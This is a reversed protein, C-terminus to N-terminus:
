HKFAADSVRHYPGPLSKSVTSHTSDSYVHCAGTCNALESATYKEGTLTKPHADPKFDNVHCAGCTGANAPALYPIQDTNSTHCTVCSPTARHEGPYAASSHKFSIVSWDSYTHCSACDRQLSMHQAPKGVAITNNHCNACGSTLTSHDLKAPLWALTGHCTDCQQSTPVHNRPLGIAHVADHCTTCTHPSVSAHEFRAPTWANTTHCSECGAATAVHGSPKGTAITGNHCSACTGKVQTHDVRSVPLWALTMHCTECANSAAIHSAPKGTGSAQDHCNICSTGFVRRHDFSGQRALSPGVTPAVGTTTGAGGRAVVGVGTTAKVAQRVAATAPRRIGYKDRASHCGSGGCDQGKHHNPGDRVWLRPEGYWAMGYEHCSDCRQARVAAHKMITGAFTNFNTPTHCQECAITGTPIHAPPGIPPQKLAPPAINAFTLGAGHCQACNATINVHNMTYVSYDNANTHCLGCNSGDAAPLPIHNPPMTTAGQFSTTSFHCNSCEGTAVHPAPPRTVIAPSGVFSKGAEHCTSCTISTVVAHNMATGAFTTFSTKSHCSECSITGTPIHNSPFTKVAPSGAFTLGAGHCTICNTTFGTHNMATGAFTTFSTKSHCGDCATTGIPIHNTPETVVPPAGVFSKGSAHCTACAISTVAAHNMATGAFSAFTSTSHCSECSITGTPIHNSPFTKVAPTGTFSLGAGHCAICDTMFGAHNMATGAFTTFNSPSHCSECARSGVPIHGAPLVKLTPPAMNTFSSGSAHCQACNSTINAHSMSYVSYDNPNSHCLACNTGDAAPLPIHNPPLNSAGTFTTTSFHCTSCEGATVHPPPPRTVVPPAGVFSKGAEHCASCAISTVVAHNMATGAFNTFNSTSHCKECALTGTPIHNSPFTKVPPAGAFTLGAGHCTICNTTFGAHNMATGSFTTFNTAAHCSQCATSGVPIHNTPETVVAPTGVFVKGSGHCSACATGSVVAHNMATGSFSTFITPSHCSECATTGVPVHNGPLVKLTPPAMNAFSATAGHCTACATGTVVSHDMNYIAYNSANSHCQSCSSSSGNPVPIHNAPFNSANKFTITTHCDSCEEVQVHPLAPRTVIPPSGVFAKGTEHCASCAISSVVAHNMVTGGFSTFNSTSHCGECATTGTPIHNAPVTLVPPTGTFSLGAGHCAICNATFGAHNMSTRSFTTFNTASHCSVCDVTGVPIHGAPETVLSPTGLFTLGAGHCAACGSTVGAHSMMTGSFTTFNSPSHCTECPKSTPVHNAPLVKLTPPAMNAFSLGAGHCSACGSSIGQHSMVYVSFDAPNSHCLTCPQSSPIHNAPQLTGATFSLTSAHCAGCDGTTPHPASPRTVITVGLFSRGAEHCTACAIATVAAHNMATGAFTTFNTTSHCSECPAGDTPIHTPPAGKAQVGNHCSACGTTIGDHSFVAGAWGITSHCADCELNTDIHQPGKGQAQVNNHCTSCSGRAQTHDFNVAPNWAVPTHCSGCRDTSLIHNVPKATARIATGVGHCSSCDHPTGKFVAKAHCSECPLDRHQGTLEFGTTLHDFQTRKQEALSAPVLTFALLLALLIRMFGGGWALASAAPTKRNSNEPTRM